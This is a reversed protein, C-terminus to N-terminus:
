SERPRRKPQWEPVLNYKVAHRQAFVTQGNLEAAAPDTVLWAVTEAPVEMPAGGYLSAFAEMDPRMRMTETIVFGPEM